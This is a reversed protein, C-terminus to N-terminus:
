FLVTARVVKWVVFAFTCVMQVVIGIRVLLWSLKGSKM